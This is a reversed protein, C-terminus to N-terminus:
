RSTSVREPTETEPASRSGQGVDLLGAALGEPEAYEEVRAEDGTAFGEDRAAPDEDEVTPGEDKADKRSLAEM